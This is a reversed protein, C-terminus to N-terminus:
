QTRVWEAFGADPGHVNLFTARGGSHAVGHRAGPMAGYFTGAGARVVDDGSYFGTEGDLVFLTDVQDDHEHAGIGPWGPDAEILMVSIEPLDGLVSVARDHRRFGEGGGAPTVIADSAPRGGDAPPDFQDFDERTRLYQAFGGDPAHFNLFRAEGASDNDFSHTVGAPILVLTGARAIVPEQEAGLRVAIEGSLVYFGDAHERHVHPNAGREGPGYRFWSVTLWGHDCLLRLERDPKDTIPEGGGRAPALVIPEM